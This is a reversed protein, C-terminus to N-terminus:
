WGVPCRAPASVSRRGMVAGRVPYRATGGHTFHILEVEQVQKELEIKADVLAAQREEARVAAAEGLAGSLMRLADDYTVSAAPVVGTLLEVIFSALRLQEKARAAAVIAPMGATLMQQATATWAERDGPGLDDIPVDFQSEVALRVAEAPLEPM